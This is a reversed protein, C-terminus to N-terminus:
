RSRVVSATRTAGGPDVLGLDVPGDGDVLGLGRLVQPILLYRPTLLRVTADNDRPVLPDLAAVVADTAHGDISDIRAGVLDESPALAAIVHIGDPFLWVRLPLSDVPSPPEGPEM